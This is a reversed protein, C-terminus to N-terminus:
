FVFVFLLPFFPLFLNNFNYSAASRESRVTTDIFPELDENNYNGYYWKLDSEHEPQQGAPDLRDPHFPYPSTESVAQQDRKRAGVSDVTVGSRKNQLFNSGSDYNPTSSSRIPLLPTPRPTSRFETLPRHIADEEQEVKKKNESRMLDLINQMSFDGDASTATSPDTDATSSGKEFTLSGKDTPSGRVVTTVSIAEKTPTTMVFSTKPTSTDQRVTSTVVEQKTTAVTDSNKTTEEDDEYYYEYEYTSSKQTSEEGSDPPTGKHVIEVSTETIQSEAPAGFVEEVEMTSVPIKPTTTTTTTSATSTTSTITTTSSTAEPSTSTLTQDEEDEEYEEYEYEEEGDEKADDERDEDQDDQPVLEELLQVAAAPKSTTPPFRTLMVPPVKTPRKLISETTTVPIEEVVTDLSQQEPRKKLKPVAVFSPGIPSHDQSIILPEDQIETGVFQISPSPKTSYMPDAKNPQFLPLFGDETHRHVNRISQQYEDSGYDIQLRDTALDPEPGLNPLPKIPSRRHSDLGSAVIPHDFKIAPLFDKPYIEPAEQHINGAGSPFYKPRSQDPENYNLPIIPNQPKLYGFRKPRAVEEQVEEEGQDDDQYVDELDVPASKADDVYM